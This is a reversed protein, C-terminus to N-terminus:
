EGMDVLASERHWDAAPRGQLLRVCRNYRLISDDNGKPRLRAAEDFCRMAEELLVLVAYPARGSRLQAKARREFLIGRYYLREYEDQLQDFTSEVEAYRDSSSGTFQDTMALGFLRLALQNAPDTALVDQCISEAEEPENLLRYLEAKANAEAVGDPSITKLKLEM